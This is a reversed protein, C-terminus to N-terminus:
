WFIESKTPKSYRSSTDSIKSGLISRIDKGNDNHYGIGDMQKLMECAPLYLAQAADFLHEPLWSAEDGIELKEHQAMFGDIKTSHLSLEFWYPLFDPPKQAHPYADFVRAKNPATRSRLYLEQVEDVRLYVKSIV